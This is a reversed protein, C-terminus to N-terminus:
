RPPAHAVEAYSAKHEAASQLRIFPWLQIDADLLAHYIKLNLLTIAKGYEHHSATQDDVYITLRIAPEDYADSGIKVDWNVVWNPFETSVAALVKQIRLMEKWPPFYPELIKILRQFALGSKLLQEDTASETAPVQNAIEKFERMAEALEQQGQPGLEAFDEVQFDQVSRPTLWIAARAISNAVTQPDLQSHDTRVRSNTYLNRATRFNALFEYKGM